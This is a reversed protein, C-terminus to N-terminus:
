LAKLNEAACPPAEHLLPRTLILRDRIPEQCSGFAEVRMLAIDEPQTELAAFAIEERREFVEIAGMGIEGTKATVQNGGQHLQLSFPRLRQAVEVQPAVELGVPKQALIHRAIHEVDVAEVAREFAHEVLGGIQFLQADGIHVEHGAQLRAGAVAVAAVRHHVVAFDIRREAGHGIEFGDGRGQALAAHTHADVQDQVVGGLFMVPRPSGALAVLAVLVIVPHEARGGQGALIGLAEDLNEGGM